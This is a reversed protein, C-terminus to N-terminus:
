IMTGNQPALSNFLLWKAVFHPNSVCSGILSGTWSSISWHLSGWVEDGNLERLLRAVVPTSPVTSHKSRGLEEGNNWTSMATIWLIITNGCRLIMTWMQLRTVCLISQNDSSHASWVLMSDFNQCEWKNSVFTIETGNEKYIILWKQKIEVDAIFFIFLAVSAMAQDLFKYIHRYSTFISISLWFGM